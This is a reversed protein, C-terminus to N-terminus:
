TEEKKEPALPQTTAIPEPTPSLNTTTTRQMPALPTSSPLTKHLIKQQILKHWFLGYVIFVLFLGGIISISLVAALIYWGSSGILLWNDVIFNRSPQLVSGHVSDGLWTGFGAYNTAGLTVIITAAILLIFMLIALKRM